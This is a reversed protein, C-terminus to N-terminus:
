FDVLLKLAAILDRLNEKEIELIFKYEENSEPNPNGLYILAVNDLTYKGYFNKYLQEFYDQYIITDKEM